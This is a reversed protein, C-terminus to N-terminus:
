TQNTKTQQDIRAQRQRQQFSLVAYAESIDDLAVLGMFTSAHHVAAVRQGKQTLLEMVEQLTNSADVKVVDRQMIETVYMDTTSSGMSRLIDNRTVLGLLNSGQMVAFDPQYSTLLYDVAKSVRDGVVLTLAHKNYADGVQLTKLVTKSEAVATEQSAGFFVFVAILVLIFNGNLLGLIGLGIALTQGIFSAIRTARRYGLAMALLARLIRGGDLPFAPIMNFVVLSVNAALLWVLLTNVTPQRMSETLGIGNLLVLSETGGLVTWLIVAIVVNVVPGALTILLEHIPKEPNKTIQAVGGLPLLTIERVPIGFRMAVLSHGLEHLTVCAFLLIMLVVGFLAGQVTNTISGWEVAGLILILIFTVHVKIPIGNVQAIKFSWSMHIGKEL